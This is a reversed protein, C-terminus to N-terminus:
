AIIQNRARRRCKGQLEQRLRYRFKAGLLCTLGGMVAAPIALMQRDGMEPHSYGWLLIMIGGALAGGVACWAASWFRGPAFVFLPLLAVLWAGLLFSLCSASLFVPGDRWFAFLAVSAGTFFANFAAWALLQALPKKLIRRRPM